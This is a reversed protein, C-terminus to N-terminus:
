QIAIQKLSLMQQNIAYQLEINANAIFVYKRVLVNLRGTNKGPATLVTEKKVTDTLCESTRHGYMECSLCVGRTNSGHKTHYLNERKQSKDSSNHVVKPNRDAWKHM